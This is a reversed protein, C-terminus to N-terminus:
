PAPLPYPLLIGARKSAEYLTDLASLEALLVCTGTAINDLAPCGLPPDSSEEDLRELARKYGSKKFNSGVDIEDPLLLRASAIFRSIDRAVAILCAETPGTSPHQCSWETVSSCYLAMTDSYPHELNQVAQRCAVHDPPPYLTEARGMGGLASLVSLAVLLQCGLRFIRKLVLRM